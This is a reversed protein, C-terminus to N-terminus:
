KHTKYVAGFFLSKEKAANVMATRVACKIVNISNKYELPNTTNVFIIETSDSFSIFCVWYASIKINFYTYVYKVTDM